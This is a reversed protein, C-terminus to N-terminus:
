GAARIQMQRFADLVEARIKMYMCADVSPEAGIQM